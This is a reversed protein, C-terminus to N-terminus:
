TPSTGGLDITSPERDSESFEWATIKASRPVRYAFVMQDKSGPQLREDCQPNGPIRNLDDIPDYRRGRDDILSSVIPRSCTLDMGSKTDNFVVTELAVYKAEAGASRTGGDMLIGDAEHVKSIKVVASGNRVEEGVKSGGASGPSPSASAAATVTKEPAVEADPTATRTLGSCATLLLAGALAATTTTTRTNM